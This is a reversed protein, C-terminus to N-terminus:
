KTEKRARYRAAAADSKALRRRQAHACPCNQYCVGLPHLAYDRRAKEVGSTYRALDAALATLDRIM